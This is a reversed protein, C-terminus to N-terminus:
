SGDCTLCANPHPCPGAHHGGGRHLPPRRHSRATAVALEDVGELFRQVLVPRGGIPRMLRDEIAAYYRM